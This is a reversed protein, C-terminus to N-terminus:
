VCRSTYLLCGPLAVDTGEALPQGVKQARLVGEPQRRVALEVGDDEADERVHGEDVLADAVALPAPM